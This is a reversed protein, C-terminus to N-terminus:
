GWNPMQVIDGTWPIKDSHERMNKKFHKQRITTVIEM